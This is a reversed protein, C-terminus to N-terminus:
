SHSASGALLHIHWRARKTGTLEKAGEAIGGPFAIWFPGQTSQSGQEGPGLVLVRLPSKDKKFIGDQHIPDCDWVLGTGHRGAEILTGEKAVFSLLSNWHVELFDGKDKELLGLATLPGAGPRDPRNQQLSVFPVLLALVARHDSTICDKLLQPTEAAQQTFWQSYWQRDKEDWTPKGYLYHPMRAHPLHYLMAALVLARTEKEDFGSHHGFRAALDALAWASQAWDLMPNTGTRDVWKWLGTKKAGLTILGAFDRWNQLQDAAPTTEQEALQVLSQVQNQQEQILQWKTQWFSIRQRLHILVIELGECLANQESQSDPFLGLLRLSGDALAVTESFEEPHLVLDLGPENREGRQQWQRLSATLDLGTELIRKGRWGLIGHNSSASVPNFSEKTAQPVATNLSAQTNKPPEPIRIGIPAPGLRSIRAKLGQIQELLDSTAIM